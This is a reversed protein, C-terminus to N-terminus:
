VGALVKYEFLELDKQPILVIDANSESILVKYGLQEWTIGAHELVRNVHEFSERSMSRAVKVLQQYAPSQKNMKTRKLMAPLTAAYNSIDINQSKMQSLRNVFQQAAQEDGAMVKSQIAKLEPTAVNPVAKKDTPQDLQPKSRILNGLARGVGAGAVAGTRKWVSANPDAKTSTALEGGIAKNFKTKLKDVFGQPEQGKNAYYKDLQKAQSSTPSLHVAGQAPQKTKPDIEIWGQASNSFTRGDPLKIESSQYDRTAAKQRAMQAIKGMSQVAGQQFSRKQKNKLFQQKARSQPAENIEQFRM